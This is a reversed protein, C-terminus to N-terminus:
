NFSEGNVDCSEEYPIFVAGLKGVSLAEVFCQVASPSSSFPIRTYEGGLLM